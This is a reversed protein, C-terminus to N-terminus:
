PTKYPIMMHTSKKPHSTSYHCYQFLLETPRLPYSLFCPLTPHSHVTTLPAPSLHHLSRDRPTPITENRCASSFPLALPLNSVLPCLHTCPPSFALPAFPDPIHTPNPSKIYYLLFYFYFLHFCVGLIVHLIFYFYTIFVHLLCYYIVSYSHFSLMIVCM